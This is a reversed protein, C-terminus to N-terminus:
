GIHSVEGRGCPLPPESAFGIVNKLNQKWAKEGMFMMVVLSLMEGVLPSPTRDRFKAFETPKLELGWGGYVGSGNFSAVWAMHALPRSPSLRDFKIPKM